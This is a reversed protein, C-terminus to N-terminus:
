RIIVMKRKEMRNGSKIQYLYIGSPLLSADFDIQHRGAPMPKDQYITQVCQGLVDLIELTVQSAQDLDFRIITKSNFPNPYNQCLDTKGAFPRDTEKVSTVTWGLKRLMPTIEPNSM